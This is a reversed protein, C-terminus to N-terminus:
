ISPHPRPQGLIQLVHDLAVEVGGGLLLALVHVHEIGRQLAREALLAHGEVAGIRLQEAGGQAIGAEVGFPLLFVARLGPRHQLALDTCEASAVAQCRDAASPRSSRSRARRVSIGAATSTATSIRTSSAPTM